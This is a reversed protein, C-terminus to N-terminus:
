LVSISDILKKNPKVTYNPDKLWEEIKANYKQNELEEKIELKVDDFTTRKIYKIIHYGYKTKVLGFDGDKASFLWEDFEKVTRGKAAQIEGGKDKSGPDESYQKVLSEFDTGTKAKQLIDEALKKKEDLKAQPLEKEESDVTSILVHKAVVRDYTKKNNNYYDSMEKDPINLDQKFKKVYIEYALVYDKYIAEYQSFNVGYTEQTFKDAKKQDGKGHDKIISDMHAKIKDLSQQDLKLNQSKAQALLIKLEKLADLSKEKATAVPDAGAVKTEWFKKTVSEEKGYVGSLQEMDRKANKLYFVFEEKTIKESGITAAVQSSDPTNQSEKKGSSCGVAGAIISFSLILLIVRKFSM